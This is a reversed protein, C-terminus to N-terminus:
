EAGGTELNALAKLLNHFNSNGSEKLFERLDSISVFAGDRGRLVRVEGTFIKTHPVEHNNM